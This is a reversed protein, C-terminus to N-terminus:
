WGSSRRPDVVVTGPDEGLWNCHAVIDIGAEAAVRLAETAYQARRRNTAPDMAGGTVMIKILDAGRAVNRRVATM